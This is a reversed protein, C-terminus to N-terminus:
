RRSGRRRCPRPASSARRRGAESRGAVAAPNPEAAGRPGSWLPKLRLWEVERPRMPAPILSRRPHGYVARRNFRKEDETRERRGDRLGVQCSRANARPNPLPHVRRKRRWPKKRKAQVARVITCSMRCGGRRRARISNPRALWVAEGPKIQGFSPQAEIAQAAVAAARSEEGPSGGWAAPGAPVGTRGNRALCCLRAAAM